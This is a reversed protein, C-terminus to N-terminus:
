SVSNVPVEVWPPVFAPVDYRDHHRLWAMGEGKREDRGKPTIDLYNYATIFIDLGRAYTSYTLYINGKADRAFASLGPADSIDSSQTNFNYLKLKSSVEKETFSVKFDRNFDNDRSSVWPFSWGMRKKFAQLKEVPARSVTVFSLGRQKLHVIAPDYHDALFSCGMCGQTWEPAFMFHYILLQEKGDFLEALKVPGSDGQFVYDKEIKLWPLERREKSIADRARTFEKEKKLFKERAKLWEDKSVIKNTNM